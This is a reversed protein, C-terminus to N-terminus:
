VLFLLSLRLKKINKSITEVLWHHLLDNILYILHLKQNFGGGVM